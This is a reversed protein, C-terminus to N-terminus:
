NHVMGTQDIAPRVVRPENIEFRLQAAPAKTVAAAPM